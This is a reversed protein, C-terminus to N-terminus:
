RRKMDAAQANKKLMRIKRKVVCANGCIEVGINDLIKISSGPNKM